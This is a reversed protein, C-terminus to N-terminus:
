CSLRHESALTPQHALNGKHVALNAKDKVLAFRACCGPWEVEV